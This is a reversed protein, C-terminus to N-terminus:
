FWYFSYINELKGGFVSRGGSKLVARAALEQRVGSLAFFFNKPSPLDTDPEEAAM